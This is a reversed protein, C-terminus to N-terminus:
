SADNATTAPTTKRLLKTVANEITDRNLFTVTSGLPNYTRPAGVFAWHPPLTGRQQLSVIMSSFVNSGPGEKCIDAFVVHDYDKLANELGSPVGSLFPCDIVDLDAEKSLVGHEVLDKRAQLSAVVGNGYSVIAIKADSSDDTSASSDYLRIEDFGLLVEEDNITTTSPYPFEWARDRDHVHRLNLLYTCDVIMVVRGAKAQLLAHRMGKVYDTGNSFCVVDVGPPMHSLMNHTHFNGGFVGRDFGQLRVIMGSRKTTATNHRRQQQQPQNHHHKDPATLWHQVAIEYFMDVGCDLYKAYPIEVIPTLGLQSFGLAAGLLTTEDPPFDLIRKPFKKALGETVLYYGGQRVDEGLYVVSPDKELLEELVRTMHKRMVQPKEDSPLPQPQPTPPAPPLLNTIAALPASVRDMMDHLSVKPEQMAAGFAQDVKSHIEEFRDQLEPYTTLNLEEVAQTMAMKLVCTDAMAVIRDDPLYAGQRDTAAHGFRRVLNSYVIVCPSQYHRAHDCAQKTQDYVAMMDQGDAQFVPLLPDNHFVTDIYNKTDYSISLGNNSIGFVVPCKVKLHKAHRALTVSSLFHHNHVSGDGITVFSIPKEDNNNNSKWKWSSEPPPRLLAYGLARGVAAPCQSALTSTVLYENPGDGISCHVGGTVPDNRSVTYARARGLLLDDLSKDATTTSSLQRAISMGTHRYHLATSDNETWALAAASLLEEGCPGITYFGHGVLSAIRAHVHLSFTAMAADLAIRYQSDSLRHQYYSSSSSKKGEGREQKTKLFARLSQVAQVEPLAVIKSGHSSQFPDWSSSSSSLFRTFRLHYVWPRLRRGITTAYLSM